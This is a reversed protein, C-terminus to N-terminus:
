NNSKKNTFYKIIDIISLIFVVTCPICLGLMSLFIIGYSPDDMPEAIVNGVAKIFLLTLPIIFALCLYKPILKKYEKAYINHLGLEGFFVALLVYIWGKKEKKSFILILCLIVVSLILDSIWFWYWEIRTPEYSVTINSNKLNDKHHYVENGCKAEYFITILVPHKGPRSMKEKVYTGNPNICNIQFPHRSYEDSYTSYEVESLKEFEKDYVEQKKILERDLHETYSYELEPIEVTVDTIKIYDFLKETWVNGTLECLDNSKAWLLVDYIIGDKGSASFDHDQSFGHKLSEAGYTSSSIFYVDKKCSFFSLSFLALLSFIFVKKYM